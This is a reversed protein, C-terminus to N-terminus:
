IAKEWLGVKMEGCDNFVECLLGYEKAVRKASDYNGNKPLVFSFTPSPRKNNLMKLYFCYNILDIKLAYYIYQKNIKKLKTLKM